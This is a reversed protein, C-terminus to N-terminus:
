RPKYNMSATKLKLIKYSSGTKELTVIGYDNSKSCWNKWSYEINITIINDIIEVMKMKTISIIESGHFKRSNQCARKVEIKNYFKTIVRRVEPDALIGDESPVVATQSPATLLATQTDQQAKREEEKRKAEEAALRDAEAAWRM